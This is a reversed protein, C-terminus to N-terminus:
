ENPRLTALCRDITAFLARYDVPKVLCEFIDLHEIREKFQDADCYASLVCIVADNHLERIKGAMTIGDMEPMKIDTLVIEPQHKQFLDLGNMGNDASFLTLERFRFSIAKAVLARAESDDEVFLLSHGSGAQSATEM